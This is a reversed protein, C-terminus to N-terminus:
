TSRTVKVRKASVEVSFKQQKKNTKKYTNVNQESEPFPEIFLKDTLLAFSKDVIAYIVSM